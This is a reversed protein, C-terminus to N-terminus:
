RIQREAELWHDLAKGEVRGRKEYIEYARLRIKQEEPANVGAPDIPMERGSQDCVVPDAIKQTEKSRLM